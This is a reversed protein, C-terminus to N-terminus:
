LATDDGRQVEADTRDHHFLQDGWAIVEVAPVEKGISYRAVETACAYM